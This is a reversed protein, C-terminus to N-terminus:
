CISSLWGKGFPPCYSASVTQQLFDLDYRGSFNHWFVKVNTRNKSLQILCSMSLPALASSLVLPGRCRGLIEHVKAWLFSLISCLKYAGDTFEPNQKTALHQVRLDAFLAWGFKALHFPTFPASALWILYRRMTFTFLIM